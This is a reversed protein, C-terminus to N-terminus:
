YEIAVKHLEYPEEETWHIAQDPCTLQCVGCLQRGYLKQLRCNTCREPRDLEPIAVGKRNLRKGEGFIKYPCVKTCLNCGKCRTEDIALKM